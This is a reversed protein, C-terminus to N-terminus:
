KSTANSPKKMTSVIFVLDLVCWTFFVLGIFVTIIEFKIFLKQIKEGLVLLLMALAATITLINSGIGIFAARYVNDLYTHNWLRKVRENDLASILISVGTFLFGGITASISILNYQLDNGLEKVHNLDLLSSSVFLLAAIFSSLFVVVLTIWNKINTM